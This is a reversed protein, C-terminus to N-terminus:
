ANMEFISDFDVYNYRCTPTAAQGALVAAYWNGNSPHPVLNHGRFGSTPQGTTKDGFTGDQNQPDFYLFTLTVDWAIPINGSNAPYGLVTPDVPYVKEVPAWSDFLLTGRPYGMFTADNLQGLSSLINTSSGTGSGSLGGSGFLGIDPVGIWTMRLQTVTTIIAKGVNGQIPVQGSAYNPTGTPWCLSGDQRQLFQSKSEVMPTIYRQWEANVAGDALIPFPPSEYQVGFKVEQWGAIDDYFDDKGTTGVGEISSVSSCWMNFFLSHQSPLTRAIDNGMGKSKAYGILNQIIQPMDAIGQIQWQEEFRSNGINWNGSIATGHGVWQQSPISDNIRSYVNQPYSDEPTGAGGASPSGM